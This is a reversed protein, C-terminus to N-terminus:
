PKTRPVVQGSKWRSITAASVSFADALDPVEIGYRLAYAIVEKFDGKAEPEFKARLTTVFNRRDAALRQDLTEVLRKPPDSFTKM